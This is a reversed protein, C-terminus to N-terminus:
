KDNVIKEEKGRALFEAASARNHASVDLSGVRKADPAFLGQWGNALSTEIIANADHGATRFKELKAVAAALADATRAKAPRIKVWANWKDRLIWAPPEYNEGNLRRPSDIPADDSGETLLFGADVIEELNITERAGIKNAIFKADYPIANDMESALLWIMMLHAKSKDALSNFAYDLFISRHLKIWPPSRRSYHQFEKWNKVRLVRM